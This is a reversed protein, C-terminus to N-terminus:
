TILSESPQPNTITSFPHIRIDQGSPFSYQFETGDWGVGGGWGVEGAEWIGAPPLALVNNSSIVNQPVTFFSIVSFIRSTSLPVFVFHPQENRRKEGCSIARLVTWPIEGGTGWGMEWKCPPLAQGHTPCHLPEWPIGNRGEGWLVRGQSEGLTRDQPIRKMRVYFRRWSFSRTLYFM